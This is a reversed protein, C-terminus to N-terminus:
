LITRFIFVVQLIWLFVVLIVGVYQIETIPIFDIPPGPLLIDWDDM